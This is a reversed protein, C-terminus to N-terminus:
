PRVRASETAQLAQLTTPNICREEVQICDARDRSTAELNVPLTWKYRTYVSYGDERSLMQRTNPGEASIWLLSADPMVAEVIGTRVPKGDRRIEVHQGLARHWDPQLHFTM